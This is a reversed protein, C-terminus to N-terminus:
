FVNKVTYKIVGAPVTFDFTEGVSKGILVQGLPSENSIKGSLPDAETAGVITYTRQKGDATELLVTSALAVTDGGQNEVVVARMIMDNLENIRGETFALDEKGQQYDANERLDGLEKATEIREALEKRTVTKLVHLEEKLKELGEQSVYLPQGQMM